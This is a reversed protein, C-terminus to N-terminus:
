FIDEKPLLSLIHENVKDVIDYTPCLIARNQLYTEDNLKQLLDLYTSEIIAALHGSTDRILLDNPIDISTEIDNQESLKRDGIKLIWQAFNRLEYNNIKTSGTKLKINRKLKLVQCFKWLYSANITTIQDIEKEFSPYFRGSIEMLYLWKEVLHREMYNPNSFMLIDRMSRDVAEFYFRNTM